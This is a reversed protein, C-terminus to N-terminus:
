PLKPNKESKSNTIGRTALCTTKKRVQALGYMRCLFFFFTLRFTEVIKASHAHRHPAAAYMIEHNMATRINRKPRLNKARDDPCFSVWLSAHADTM